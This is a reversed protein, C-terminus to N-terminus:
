WLSTRGPPGTATTQSNGLSRGRGGAPGARGGRSCRGSQPSCDSLGPPHGPPHSSPAPGAAPHTPLPRPAPVCRSPSTGQARHRPQTPPEAPPPQAGAAAPTPPFPPDGDRSPSGVRPGLASPLCHPSCGGLSAHAPAAGAAAGHGVAGATDERGATPAPTRLIGRGGPGAQRWFLCRASGGRRGRWLLRISGNNGADAALVLLPAEREAM